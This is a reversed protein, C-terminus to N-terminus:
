NCRRIPGEKKQEKEYERLAAIFGADDGAHELVLARLGLALIIGREIPDAM